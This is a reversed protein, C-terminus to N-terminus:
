STVHSFSDHCVWLSDQWTLSDPWVCTQWRLMRMRWPLYISNHIVLAFTRLKHTCLPELKFFGGLVLERLLHRRVHLSFKSFEGFRKRPLRYNERNCWYNKRWTWRYIKAWPLTPLIDEYLLIVKAQSNLIQSVTLKNCQFLTKPRSPQSRPIRVRQLM